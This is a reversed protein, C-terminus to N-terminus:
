LTNSKLMPSNQFKSIKDDCCTVRQVMYGGIGKNKKLTVLDYEYGFLKNIKRAKCTMVRLYGDSVCTLYPKMEAYIQSRATKDVLKKDESRLEVVKDEFRESFLCWATIEAQKAIISKNRAVNAQSFSNALKKISISGPILTRSPSFKIPELLQGSSLLEGLLGQVFETVISAEVASKDQDNVLNVTKGIEESIESANRGNVQNVIKIDHPVKSDVVSNM